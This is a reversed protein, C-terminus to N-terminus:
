KYSNHKRRRIRARAASQWHKFNKISDIADKWCGTFQIARDDLYVAALPKHECVRDVVIGHRELYQEIAQRGAETCCRGSHIVVIAMKRLESIAEKAGVVPQDQIIHRDLYKSLNLHIVGDFDICIVPGRNM